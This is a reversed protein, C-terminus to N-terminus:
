LDLAPCSQLGSIPLRVPTNSKATATASEAQTVMAAEISGM